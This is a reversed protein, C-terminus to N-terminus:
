WQFCRLQGQLDVDHLRLCEWLTHLDRPDARVMHWRYAIRRHHQGAPPGQFPIRDISIHAKMYLLKVAYACKDSDIWWDLTGMLSPKPVAM